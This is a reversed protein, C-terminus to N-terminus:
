ASDSAYRGRAYLYTLAIMVLGSAVALADPAHRVGFAGAILGAAGLVTVATGLHLFMREQFAWRLPMFHLGVVAAILAQRLDSHGTAILIRTGFAILALEVLVCGSYVALSLRTPRALPGLRTPRIYHAVLVAAVGVAGAVKVIVAAVLGLVPSYSVVFVMGGVLGILSGWRRPDVFIPPEGVAPGYRHNPREIIAASIGPEM